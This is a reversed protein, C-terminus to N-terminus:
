APTSQGAHGVLGLGRPIEAQGDRQGLSDEYSRADRERHAWRPDRLPTPLRPGDGEDARWRRRATRPPCRASACSRGEPAAAPPPPGDSVTSAPEAATYSPPGKVRRLRRMQIMTAPTSTNPAPAATERLQFLAVGTRVARTAVCSM